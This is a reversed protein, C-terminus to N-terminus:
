RECFSQQDSSWSSGSGIKELMTKEEGLLDLNVGTRRVMGLEEAELVGAGRGGIPVRSAQAM